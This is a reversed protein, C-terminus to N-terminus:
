THVWKIRGKPSLRTRVTSNFWDSRMTEWTTSMSTEFEDMVILDARRGCIGAGIHTCFLNKHRKFLNFVRWANQQTSTVYMVRKGRQLLMWIRQQWPKLAVPFVTAQTITGMAKFPFYAAMSVAGVLALFKRRNM